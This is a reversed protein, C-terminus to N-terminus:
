EGFGKEYNRKLWGAVTGFVPLMLMMACAQYLNNGKSM